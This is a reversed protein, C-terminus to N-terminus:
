AYMSVDHYIHVLQDANLTEDDTGSRNDGIHLLGEETAINATITDLDVNVTTTDGFRSLTRTVRALLLVGHLEDM